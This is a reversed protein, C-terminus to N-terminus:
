DEILDKSIRRLENDLFKRVEEGTDFTLARKAIAKADKFSIARIAKKVKPLVFPSTSIEDIELGILLLSPGIRTTPIEVM